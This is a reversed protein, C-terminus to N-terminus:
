LKSVDFGRAKLFARIKPAARRVPRAFGGADVTIKAGDGYFSLKWEKAAFLSLGKAIARGAQAESGSNVGVDLELVQHEVEGRRVQSWTLKKTEKRTALSVGEKTLAFRGPIKFPWLLLYLLAVVGWHVLMWFLPIMLLGAWLDAMNSSKFFLPWVQSTLLIGGMFSFLSLYARIMVFGTGYSRRVSSMTQQYQKPSSIAVTERKM